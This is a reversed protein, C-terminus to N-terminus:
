KIHEEASERSDAFYLERNYRDSEEWECLGAYTDVGSDDEFAVVTTIGLRTREVTSYRM